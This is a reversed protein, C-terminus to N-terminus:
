SCGKRPHNAMQLLATINVAMISKSRVVEGSFKFYKDGSMVFIYFAISFTMSSLTLKLVCAVCIPPMTQRCHM